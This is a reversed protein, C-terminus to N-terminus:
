YELSAFPSMETVCPLIVNKSDGSITLSQKMGEQFAGATLMLLLVITAALILQFTRVPSKILNLLTYTFM